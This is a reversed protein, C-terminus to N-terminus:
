GDRIANKSSRGAYASPSSRLETAPVGVSGVVTAAGPTRAPRPDCRRPSCRASRGCTAAGPTRAPRPDCCWRHRSSGTRPRDAAGPTRAPRPDCGSPPWYWCCTGPPSRGAYASPSSRLGPRRQPGVVPEASRGAYASPSSRLPLGLVFTAVEPSLQARRVRQALIAVGPDLAVDFRGHLHQARRVRQALIAVGLGRFLGGSVDLQARRVRQALIAVTTVCVRHRTGAVAAGPTRAPRPDCSAPLGSSRTSRVPQARRVRQALIAVTTTEVYVIRHGACRGAYASPSSRLKSAVPATRGCGWPQARRVRQALIAVCCRIGTDPDTMHQARRVRQALIAVVNRHARGHPGLGAAGPTRAPRPDCRGVGFTDCGDAGPSRGAYASPSSRM